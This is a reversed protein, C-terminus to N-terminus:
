FISQVSHFGSQVFADNMMGLQKSECWVVITAFPAAHQLSFLKFFHVLEVLTHPEEDWAAYKGRGGFKMEM